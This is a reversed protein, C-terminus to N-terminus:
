RVYTRDNWSASGEAAGMALGKAWGASSGRAAASNASHEPAMRALSTASAMALTGSMGSVTAPSPWSSSRIMAVLRISAQDSDM